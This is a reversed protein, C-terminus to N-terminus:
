RTGPTTRSSTSMLSKKWERSSAPVTKRRSAFGSQGGPNSNTKKLCKRVTEPCVYEVVQLRALGDCLLQLTWRDRGDPPQSCCLTVLKAEAQGDLKGPVSPRPKRNLVPEGERVFQQRIRVVQRECIGVAEGIESDHRGGDPHGEDSMLLVRARRVKAAAVSQRRCIAELDVRYEPSLFVKLKKSLDPM